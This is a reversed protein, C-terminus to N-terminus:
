VLKVLAFGNADADTLAMVDGPEARDATGDGDSDVTGLEGSTGSPALKVGATVGAAVNARAVGDTQLAVKSGSGIGAANEPDGAETQTGLVGAFGNSGDALVLDGSSASIAVADGAVAADSGLTYPIRNGDGYKPEGPDVEAM